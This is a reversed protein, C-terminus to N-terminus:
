QSDKLRVPRALGATEGALGGAARRMARSALFTLVVAATFPAVAPRVDADSFLSAKASFVILAVVFVDLMSWKGVGELAALWWRPARRGLRLLVWASLLLLIKIAPFAVSFAGVVAAMLYEREDLLLRVGELISFPESFIIWSRVEMIPLVLGAVLCAGAAALLPLVYLPAPSRCSRPRSPLDIQLEAM